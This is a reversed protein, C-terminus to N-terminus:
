LSGAILNFINIYTETNYHLGDVLYYGHSALWSHTDIYRVGSLQGAITANFNIVQDETVWPNEWVPNVSVFYTKAGRGAWEAAKQNIVAAYNSANRTDNVGLCIVVKTGKGVCQDAQGIAKECLWDYGKANECIWSSNGGGVAEKMQVCRSDGIFLIGAPAAVAQPAPAQAQAPTQNAAAAAAEQAAKEAQIKAFSEAEAQAKLADLDVVEAGVLDNSIFASTDNFKILYWGKEEYRGIVSVETNVDYFSVKDFKTSPGKRVNASSQLYMKQEDQRKIKSLDVKADLGSYLKKDEESLNLEAVNTSEEKETTEEENEIKSAEDAKAEETAEEEKNVKAKEAKTAEVPKKEAKKAEEVAKEEETKELEEANSEEVTQTENQSVSETGCSCLVTMSLALVLACVIKKM